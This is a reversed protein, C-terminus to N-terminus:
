KVFCIPLIKIIDEKIQNPDGIWITKIENLAIKTTFYKFPTEYDQPKIYQLYANDYEVFIGGSHFFM